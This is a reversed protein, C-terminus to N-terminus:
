LFNNPLLVNKTRMEHLLTRGVSQQIYDALLYEQEKVSLDSIRGLLQERKKRAVHLAISAAVSVNFSEVFGAMPISFTGNAQERLTDSIGLRENGFVLAIPTSFDISDLPQTGNMDAALVQYGFSQLKKVGETTNAHKEIWLWKEAGRSVARAHPKTAADPDILHCHLLGHAEASRYIASRNGPDYLSEMVVTLGKMRRGIVARLRALRKPVLETSLSQIM